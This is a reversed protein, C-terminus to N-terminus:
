AALSDTHCVGLQVDEAAVKSPLEINVHIAGQHDGHDVFEVPFLHVRDEAGDLRLRPADSSAFNM